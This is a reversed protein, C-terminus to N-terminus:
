KQTRLLLRKLFNIAQSLVGRKTPFETLAQLYSTVDDTRNDQLATAFDDYGPLQLEFESRRLMFFINLNNIPIHNTENLFNNFEVFNSGGVIEKELPVKELDWIKNRRLEEMQEPFRNYLILFKALKSINGTLFDPPLSNKEIRKKALIYLGILQNIFQKIQRPSQRYAKTVLWAVSSEKFEPISTQNLLEMAYSELETPYFDPITLTANFFKRLFEEESFADKELNSLKYYVNRLHEKIARDDCPILFIVGKGKVNETELFTKITALIEVAKEHVIRDLNDFIVLMKSSRLNEVLREFEFEFEHPDKFREIEQTITESTLFYGMAKSIIVSVIGGGALISLIISAFTKLSEVGFFWCVLVGLLVIGIFISLSANRYKKFFDKLRFQGEIKRTVKLDLREQLTFDDKLNGQDKLQRVSEKLFTRRLADSEHKWVDFVVFGFKNEAMAKKLMYPITSKGVGWREFLGITFPTPCNIILSTLTEAIENHGFKANEFDAQSRLPQDSLLKFNDM